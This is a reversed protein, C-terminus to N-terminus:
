KGGKLEDQLQQLEDDKGDRALAAQQSWTGPDHVRYRPGAEDLIEQLREADADALQAFTSIGGATLHEAIKPGIGEIRTLDDGGAAEPGNAGTEDIPTAITQAVEEAPTAIENLDAAGPDTVSDRALEADAVREDVDAAVARESPLVSPTAKTKASATRTALAGVAAAAADRTGIIPRTQAAVEADNPQVSVYTRDGRRRRFVVTGDVRAHLTYDRGQYVNDGAHFKTGRQRVIINGARASQGGFLKVGLYKPNSDRGNDTSGVGKKHAM